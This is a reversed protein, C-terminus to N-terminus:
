ALARSLESESPTPTCASVLWSMPAERYQSVRCSTQRVMQQSLGTSRRVWLKKTSRIGLRRLNQTRLWTGARPPFGISTDGENWWTGARAPSVLVEIHLKSGTLGLQHMTGAFAMTGARAPSVQMVTECAMEAQGLGQTSRARRVRQGRCRGSEACLLSERRCLDSCNGMDLLSGIGAATATRRRACPPRDLRVQSPGKPAKRDSVPTAHRKVLCWPAGRCHAFCSTGRQM